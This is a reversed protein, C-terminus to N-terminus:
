AIHVEKNSQAPNAGTLLCVTQRGLSTGWLEDKELDGADRIGCM